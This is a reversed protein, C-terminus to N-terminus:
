QSESISSVFVKATLYSQVMSEQTTGPNGVAETLVERQAESLFDPILSVNVTDATDDGTHPVPGEWDVGYFKEQPFVAL